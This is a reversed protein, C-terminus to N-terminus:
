SVLELYYDMTIDYNGLSNDFDSLWRAWLIGSGAAASADHGFIGAEKIYYTSEAATFFTSLKVEIDGVGVPGKQTIAKRSQEAILISDGTVPATNDNGMACYTFGNAYGGDNIVYHLLWTKGVLVILNHGSKVVEEGTVIHRATLRWRGKIGLYETEITEKM